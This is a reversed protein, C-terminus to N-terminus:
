SGDACVVSEGDWHCGIGDWYDTLGIADLLEPFGPHNRLPRFDEIFLLETDFDAPKSLVNLAIDMARDTEGILVWLTLEINGPLAQRASLDAVIQRSREAKDPDELGALFPEVWSDDQGVKRLASSASVGARDIQGVRTLYLAAALDHIQLGITAPRVSEYLSFYRGANDLDNSWFYAIAMRSIAVPDDPSLEVALRAQRVSEDLRGVSALFLSYWHRSIPYVVDANIATQYAATSEAWEHRKHHIFGYVTGAPERVRPDAAIGQDTIISALEYMEERAAGAYDPLLLYAEALRLYAPGFDSDLVITERLLDVARRISPGTRQAMDYQAEAYKEFAEFSAPRSTATLAEEDGGTISAGVDSAVQEQLSFINQVPGDYTSSWLTSGDGGDILQATIRVTEGVKLVTGEILGDVGYEGALDRADGDPLTRKVKVVRLDPVQYITSVLEESFGFCLYETESDGGMCEFQFVAVARITGSSDPGRGPGTIVYIAIMAVAIFGAILPLLYGSRIPVREPETEAVEPVTVPLMIRYGIKPVNEIYTPNRADDGLAKRLVAICRTIVEDAVPRGKWVVEVLEDKHVVDGQKAALLVLVDMPLPEVRKQTEGDRLLGREPLVSWPGLEFGQRLDTYSPM